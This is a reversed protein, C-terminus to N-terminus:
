PHSAEDVVRQAVDRLKRNSTQSMGTLILFAHAADCRRNAMLIGKAQEIVARSAMASQLQEALAKTSEHLQMNAIAVAAYSAFARAQELSGADFADAPSAYCNLAAAVRPQVPVPVSMSSKVDLGEARSAFEAWRTETASDSMLVAEGGEAAELCPGKMEAYQGEDLKLAVDGSFAVTSPGTPTLLTVSVSEAAVIVECALDAVTQLVSEVSAAGLDIQALQAFATQPEM